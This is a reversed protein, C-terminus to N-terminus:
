ILDRFFFVIMQRSTRNDKKWDHNHYDYGDIQYSKEERRKESRNMQDNSEIRRSKITSELSM